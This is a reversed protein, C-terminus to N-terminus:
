FHSSGGLSSGSISSPTRIQPTLEGASFTDKLGQVLSSKMEEVEKKFTYGVFNIDKRSRTTEEAPFFPEDEKFPDFLCCDFDDKVQPLIPPKLSERPNSWDIGAFFPHAQIEEVGNKGIRDKADCMLKHILDVAAPSLNAEAPIKLFRRWKLIKKCTISPDESFFPPYGVLMEFMIAGVGWWDVTETYGSQGFVEPAIYDPTGVTSNALERTAKYEMRRGALPAGAM